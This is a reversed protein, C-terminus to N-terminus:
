TKEKPNVINVVGTTTKAQKLRVNRATDEKLQNCLNPNNELWNVVSAPANIEIEGSSPMEGLKQAQRLLDLATVDPRPAHSQKVLRERLASGLKQRKIEFLGFPSLKGVEVHLPDAKFMQGIATELTTKAKSGQMDIFDVVILGGINQFMLAHAIANAAELNTKLANDAALRVAQGTTSSSNVDIATLAQTTEISIWGGSPLPIKGEIVESLKEDVGFFSFINQKNQFATLQIKDTDIQKKLQTLMNLDDTIIESVDQYGKKALLQHIFHQQNNNTITNIEKAIALKNDSAIADRTIELTIKQGQNLLKNIPNKKQEPKKIIGRKPLFVEVSPQNIKLFAGDLEPSVKTVKAEFQLGLISPEHARLLTLQTATDNEIVAARIEGVSSNIILTKAM